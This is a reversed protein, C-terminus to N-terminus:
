KDGRRKARATPPANWPDEPWPHKPYRGRLEKRVDAYTRDWFSRLDRTMQVPRGNPALLALLVPERRPGIRPTEALGFLEQLKVSASVSGDDHYELPVSRGSPVTLREPADRDVRRRVDPDLQAAIDIDAATRAGYAAARATQELDIDVGAFRLRRLLAIREASAQGNMWSAALLGAAADPDVEAPRESMILEGYREVVAARVRGSEDIWHVTQRSTPVLWEREIRSALRIISDPDGARSSARVDLAVLFEGERVGSEDAVIAGAGSSLKVRNSRVDRRQAVRDPYGSFLARRFEDDGLSTESTGRRDALARAASSEIERAAQQVHPPVTAWEDIASLLDSTTTASRPPLFARESLIACARAMSRSGRGDVLVRALRPHLPIRHMARGIDTVARGRIAGIRELLMAAAAIADDRPREFWDFTAPDGGWALVELAASALDVRHIEPERQRHLRDTRPWLRWVAGPGLRAARGARQDASDAAIRETALSDIGRSADYRAVKQLGSDIVAHVDPVTVSTEAINTAVVVRRGDAPSKNLARDQDRSDLSGHLALLQAGSPLRPSIATMARAIEAAGPLFCLVDGETASLADVVADAISREPAYAIELPHSAGPVDVVPCDDLFASVPGPDLTASMVVIRLDDRARWAHRALALGLDAHISREHFEDIVITTFDSLLPDSQLRATLIGETAVLLKTEAGFRKDLRVHWGVERGITWAREAAIRHAIARAAARRPQLLLVPGDACLAPPVRTTKGAGPEAVLVLARRARLTEVIEPIAPDIPLFPLM